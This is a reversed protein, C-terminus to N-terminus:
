KTYDSGIIITIDVNGLNSSSESIVGVGLIEKIKDTMESIGDKDTHIIIETADYNFKDADKIEKVVVTKQEKNLNNELINKVNIAIGPTGVGNFINLNYVQTQASEQQIM